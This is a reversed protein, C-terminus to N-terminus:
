RVSSDITLSGGAAGTIRVIEWATEIGLEDHGVLTALYHNGAGFGTLRAAANPDVSAVTATVSLAATLVTSWNNLWQLPM